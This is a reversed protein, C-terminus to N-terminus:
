YGDLIPYEEIPIETIHGETDRHAALIPRTSGRRRLLMKSWDHPPIMVHYCVRLEWDRSLFTWHEVIIIQPYTHWRLFHDAASIDLEPHADNLWSIFTDRYGIEEGPTKSQEWEFMEVTLPLTTHVGNHTATLVITLNDIPADDDPAIRIEAVSDSRDLLYRDLQAHLAPDADLSLRVMGAFGADPRISVVFLGGGGPFSRVAGATARLTFSGADDEAPMPEPPLSENFMDLCGQFGAALVLMLAATMRRVFMGGSPISFPKM